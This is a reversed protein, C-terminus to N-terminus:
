KKSFAGISYTTFDGSDLRMDYWLKMLM